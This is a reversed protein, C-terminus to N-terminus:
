ARVETGPTKTKAPFLFGNRWGVLLAILTAMPIFADLQETFDILEAAYLLGMPGWLVTMSAAGVGEEWPILPMLRGVTLDALDIAVSVALRWFFGTQTMAM